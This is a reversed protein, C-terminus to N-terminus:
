IMPANEMSTSYIEDNLVVSHYILDAVAIEECVCSMGM